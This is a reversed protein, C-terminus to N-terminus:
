IQTDGGGTGTEERAQQERYLRLLEEDSPSNRIVTFPDPKDQEAQFEQLIPSPPPRMPRNLAQENTATEQQRKLKVAKIANNLAAGGKPLLVGQKTQNYVYMFMPKINNDNIAIDIDDLSHVGIFDFTEKSVGYNGQFWRVLEAKLPLPKEIESFEMEPAETGDSYKSFTKSISKLMPIVNAVFISLLRIYEKSDSEREYRSKITKEMSYINDKNGLMGAIKNIRNSIKMFSMSNLTGDRNPFLEKLIIYVAKAVPNGYTYLEHFIPNPDTVHTMISIASFPNTIPTNDIAMYNNVLNILDVKATNIERDIIEKAKAIPAPAEGLDKPQRGHRQKAPPRLKAAADVFIDYKHDMLDAFRFLRQSM